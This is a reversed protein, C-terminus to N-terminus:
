LDFCQFLEKVCSSLPINGVIDNQIIESDLIDSAINGKELPIILLKEDSRSM